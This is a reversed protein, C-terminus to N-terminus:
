RRITCHSVTEGNYKASLRIMINRLERVNGPFEYKLWLQKAQIMLTLIAAWKRM